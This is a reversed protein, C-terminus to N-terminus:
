EAKAALPVLCQVDTENIYIELCYGDPKINQQKLMKQFTSGILGPNSRWNTITESIYNGNGITFSDLKYKKSEGPYSEEAAAKYVINGNEGGYSIGFFKRKGNQPLIKELKRYAEEIGDPFSKAQVYLVDFDRDIKYIEM